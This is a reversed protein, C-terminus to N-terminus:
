FETSKGPMRNCLFLLSSHRDQFIGPKRFDLRIKAIGNTTLLKLDGNLPMNYVKSLSFFLSFVFKQDIQPLTFVFTNRVM